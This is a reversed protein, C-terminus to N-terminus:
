TRPIQSILRRPRLDKMMARFTEVEVEVVQALLQRAGARLVNTLPDIENPQRLPVIGCAENM